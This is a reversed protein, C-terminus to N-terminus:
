GFGRGETGRTRGASALRSAADTSRAVEDESPANPSFRDAEFTRVILTVDDRERRALPDEILLRRLHESPTRSAPRAIGRSEFTEVLRAFAAEVPTRPPARGRRRRALAAGAAAVALAILVVPWAGAVARSARAIGRGAAKAAERVPEPIANGLFRGIRRLIEPAIFRAGGVDDSRPVGFTPDYPVWGVAPHYVEVWAHADKEAVEFYGTFVNREGPGFGVALRTPVGVARLLVAMASAIAECYGEKQEFLFTDLPDADPDYPPINLNYRTNARLWDQVAIAKDYGNAAGGTIETALERVRPTLSPVQTYQEVLEQPARGERRLLEPSFQAVHSVVSYVMGEELLLPSIVTGMPDVEVGAAPFYIREAAYASFVINPQESQV